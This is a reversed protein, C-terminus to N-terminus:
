ARILGDVAKGDMVLDMSTRTVLDYTPAEVVFLRYIDVHGPCSMRDSPRTCRRAACLVVGRRECPACALFSLVSSSAFSDSDSELTTSGQSVGTRSKEAQVDVRIATANSM